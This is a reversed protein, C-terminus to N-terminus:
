CHMTSFRKNETSDKVLKTLLGLGKLLSPNRPSFLLKRLSEGGFDEMVIVPNQSEIWECIQIIGSQSSKELERDKFKQLLKAETRFRHLHLPTPYEERLFKFIFPIGEKDDKGRYVQSASSEYILTEIQYGELTFM